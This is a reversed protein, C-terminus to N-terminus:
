GAGTFRIITDAIQSAIALVPPVITALNEAAKKLGDASIRLKFKNPKEEKAAEVLEQAFEAVAEAEEGQEPPAQQLVVKLEEVLEELAEKFSADAHPIAGISQTTRDLISNINVFAGAFNGSLVFTDGGANKPQMYSPDKRAVRGRATLEASTGRTSKYLKVLGGPEMLDLYDRVEQLDMGLKDSISEDTVLTGGTAQLEAIARLVLRREDTKSMAPEEREAVVPGREFQGPRTEEIEALLADILDRRECYAIAKQVWASLSEGELFQGEAERLAPNESFYFLDRLEQGNFSKLLFDRLARITQRTPEKM